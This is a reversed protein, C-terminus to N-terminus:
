FGTKSRKRSNKNVFSRSHHGIPYSYPTRLMTPVNPSVMPHNFVMQQGLSCIQAYFLLNRFHTDDFVQKRGNRSKFSDSNHSMPYNNPAMLTTPVKPSVVPYNFWENVWLFNKHTSYSTISTLIMLFRNQIRKRGNKSVFSYSHHGTPYSYPTMLTTLVKPSVRPYNYVVQQGM